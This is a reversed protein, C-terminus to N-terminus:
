KYCEGKIERKDKEVVNELALRLKAIEPDSCEVGGESDHQRSKSDVAFFWESDSPKEINPIIKKALIINNLLHQLLNQAERLKADM